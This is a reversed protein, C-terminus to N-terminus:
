IKALPGDKFYNHEDPDLPPTDFTFVNESVILAGEIMGYPDVVTSEDHRDCVRWNGWTERKCKVPNRPDPKGYEDVFVWDNAPNIKWNGQSYRPTKKKLFLNALNM